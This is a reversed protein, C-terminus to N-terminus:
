KLLGEKKLIDLVKQTFIVESQEFQTTKFPQGDDAILWNLNVDLEQNLITLFDWNPKSQNNVISSMTQRSINAINCLESKKFRKEALILEIKEGITTM